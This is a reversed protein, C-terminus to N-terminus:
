RGFTSNAGDLIVTTNPAITAITRTGLDLTGNDRVEWTGGSLTNSAFNALNTSDPIFVTGGDVAILLTGENSFGGSPAISLYTGAVTKEILGQNVIRGSGGVFFNSSLGGYGTANVTVSSGLTLTNDGEASLYSFATASGLNLTLNTLTTNQEFGLLNSNTLNLTTDALTTTGSLRLHGGAEGFDLAGAAVAVDHLRNSGSAGVLLHSGGSATISGGTITGGLLRLDGTAATLALTTSANDLQGTLNVVTTGTRSLGALGLGTTTTTGGYNLTGDTLSITGSNSWNTGSLNLTGGNVVQSGQNIWSTGDLNLTGNALVEMTGSAANIVGGSVVYVTGGDAAIRLTGENRFGGAPAIYLYSGAGVTKEILGQNVLVGTGGVFFNSTLYGYGTANVTVSPGLTLTNDGEVSLYSFATASGLNVTLGTLTRTQEFGLLNGNTLNLTTDPFTTTGSLRLSGGTESFDLVGAGVAVDVLRNSGNAGVLLRAGGAATISGGSIAGGYLRFDGTAATLALTTSTNDLQGTLNVTTVGSRTLGALGLGATTTSGGLNLTGGNLDITGSNSWNGGLTVTGGTVSITGSNSWNTAALSATGGNVVM